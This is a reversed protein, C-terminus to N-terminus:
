GKNLKWSHTHYLWHHLNLPPIFNLYLDYGLSGDETESDCLHCKGFSSLKQVGFFLDLCWVQIFLRSRSDSWEHLYWQLPAKEMLTENNLSFINTIIAVFKSPIHKSDYQPSFVLVLLPYSSIPKPAATTKPWM